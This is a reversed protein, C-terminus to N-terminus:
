PTMDTDPAPVDFSNLVMSILCYGGILFTLEGV